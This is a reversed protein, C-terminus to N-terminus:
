LGEQWYDSQSAFDLCSFPDLRRLAGSWGCRSPASRARGGPAQRYRTLNDPLDVDVTVRGDGDTTAAPEFVALADFDTRVDIPEAGTGAALAASASSDGGSNDDASGEAVDASAATTTSTAASPTAGGPEGLQEPDALQLTARSRVARLYLEYRQYFTEIPDGLQYDILSLVAEDVVVVAVDAGAEPAGDAGTIIVDVTTSGGPEVAEDRPEVAVELTRSAPPVELHLSGSALAPRTPLDDDVRGDAGRRPAAGVLDVRVDM